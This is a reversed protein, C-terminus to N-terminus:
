NEKKLAKIKYGYEMLEERQSPSMTVNMLNEMVNPSPVPAEDLIGQIGGQRRSANGYQSKGGWFNNSLFEIEEDVTKPLRGYDARFGQELGSTLNKRKVIDLLQLLYSKTEPTFQKIVEKPFGNMIKGNGEYFVKEFFADMFKAFKSGDNIPLVKYNGRSIGTQPKVQEAPKPPTPKQEAPKESPKPSTPTKEVPKVSGMNNKKYKELVKEGFNGKVMLEWNKSYDPHLRIKDIVEIQSQYFEEAFQDNISSLKRCFKLINIGDERSHYDVAKSLVRDFAGSLTEDTRRGLITSLEDFAKSDTKELGKILPNIFIKELEIYQENIVNSNNIFGHMELITQKENETVFLLKKM